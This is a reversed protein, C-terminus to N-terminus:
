LRTRAEAFESFDKASSDMDTKVEALRQEVFLRERHASSTNVQALLQNLDDVYAQAMAAARKPDKDEVTISIIGTEDDEKATTSKELTKRADEPYDASYLDMLGFRQILDDEITRSQMVGVM